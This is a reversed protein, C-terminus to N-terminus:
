LEGKLLKIETLIKGDVCQEYDIVFWIGNVVNRYTFVKLGSVIDIFTNKRKSKARFSTPISNVSKDCVFICKNKIEEMNDLVASQIYKINSLNHKESEKIIKSIYDDKSKIFKDITFIEKKLIDDYYTYGYRQEQDAFDVVYKLEEISRLIYSQYYIDGINDFLFRIIKMFSFNDNPFVSKLKNQIIKRSNDYERSLKKLRSRELVHGKIHEIYIKKESLKYMRSCKPCEYVQVIPLSFDGM